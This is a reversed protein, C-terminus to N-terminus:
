IDLFIPDIKAINQREDSSLQILRSSKPISYDDGGISLLIQFIKWGRGSKNGGGKYIRCFNFHYCVYNKLLYLSSVHKVLFIFIMLM